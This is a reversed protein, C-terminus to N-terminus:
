LVSFVVKKKFHKIILQIIGGFTVGINGLYKKKYMDVKRLKNTVWMKMSIM